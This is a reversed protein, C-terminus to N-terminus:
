GPQSSSSIPMGNRAFKTPIAEDRYVAEVGSTSAVDPLFL